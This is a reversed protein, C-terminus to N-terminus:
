SVRSEFGEDSLRTIFEPDGADLVLNIERPERERPAQGAFNSNFLEVAREQSEAWVYCREYSCGMYGTQIEYLKM